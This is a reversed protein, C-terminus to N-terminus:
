GLHGLSRLWLDSEHSRVRNVPRAASRFCLCPKNSQHKEVISIGPRECVADVLARTHTWVTM